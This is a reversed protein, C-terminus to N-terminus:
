LLNKFYTKNKLKYVKFDSDVTCVLNTKLKQCSLYVTADAYDMPLDSYKILLNSIEIYDLKDFSFIKINSNALRQYFDSRANTNIHLIFSVETIVAETTYHELKNNKFFDM